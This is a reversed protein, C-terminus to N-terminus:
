VSVKWIQAIAALAVKLALMDAYAFGFHAELM